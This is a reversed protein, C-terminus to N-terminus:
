GFVRIYGNEILIDVADTNNRVLLVIKDGDNVTFITKPELEQPTIAAVSKTISLGQITAQAYTNIGAGDDTFTVAPGGPALALQFTNATKNVVAYFFKDFLEAPLTGANETFTVFDGDERPTATENVVNTGNTFTVTNRAKKYEGISFTISKTAITPALFGHGDVIVLIANLGTYEVEGNSGVVMSQESTAVWGTLQVIHIADQVEIVTDVANGTLVAQASVNGAGTAGGGVQTWVVNPTIATLSWFSIDDLQLAYKYLDDPDTFDATVAANRAVADAYEFAHVRHIEALVLDKHFSM